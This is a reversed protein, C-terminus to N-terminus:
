VKLYYCSICIYVINPVLHINLSFLGMHHNSLAGVLRVVFPYRMEDHENMSSFCIFFSITEGFQGRM